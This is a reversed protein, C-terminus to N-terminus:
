PNILAWTAPGVIGDPVVGHTRQFIRVKAETDAGFIGDATANIGAQLAKVAAGMAGRRITPRGQGDTTPISPPPAAGQLYRRVGARFDDMNFLPDIKRKPAFEKHGCVWTEDANIKRLIAAVGRQYAEIQVPPWKDDTAGTNEAEIGIFNTNGTDILGNWEGSGAHFARGAAVVYYTGDRGLGLNCLPGALDSRGHTVLGLTPMNGSAPGATHHCIVGRIRGVDGHGRDRWGATEAVKLGVGALTDYLWTLSYPM